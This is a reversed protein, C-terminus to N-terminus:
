LAGVVPPLKVKEFFVLKPTQKTGGIDPTFFVKDFDTAVSNSHADSGNKFSGRDNEPDIDDVDALVTPFGSSAINAEAHYGYGGSGGLGDVNFVLGNDCTAISPMEISMGGSPILQVQVYIQGKEPPVRRLRGRAHDLCVELGFTIDMLNFICGGNYGGGAAAGPTNIEKTYSRASCAPLHAISNNTFGTSGLSLFDIHSKFEKMCVVRNGEQEERTAMGGLQVLSVNYAEYTNESANLSKFVATGFVFLWDKYDPTSVFDCLEKILSIKNSKEDGSMLSIDYAGTAGRFYFEPAMFIKLTDADPDGLSTYSARARSIADKMCNTRSKLDDEDPFYGKYYADPKGPNAPGTYIEYAIFQVNKYAKNAM